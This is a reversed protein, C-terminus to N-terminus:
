CLGMPLPAELWHAQTLNRLGSKGSSYIQLMTFPELIGRLPSHPRKAGKAIFSVRGQDQTLGDILLSTERWPRTHLVYALTITM